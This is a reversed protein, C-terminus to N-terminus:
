FISFSVITEFSFCNIASLCAQNFFFFILIRRNIYLFLHNNSFYYYKFNDIRKIKWLNLYVFNDIFQRCNIRFQQFNDILIVISLEGDSIEVLISLRVNAQACLRVCEPIRTVRRPDSPPEVLTVSTAVLWQALLTAHRSFLFFFSLLVSSHSLSFSLTFSDASSSLDLASRRSFLVSVRHLFQCRKKLHM